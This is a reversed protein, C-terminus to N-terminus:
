FHEFPFGDMSSPRPPCAIDDLGHSSMHKSFVHLFKQAFRQKHSKNSKM